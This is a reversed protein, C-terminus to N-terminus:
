STFPTSVAPRQIRFCYKVVHRQMSLTFTKSVNHLTDYIYLWPTIDIVQGADHPSYLCDRDGQKNKKPIYELVHHLYSKQIM